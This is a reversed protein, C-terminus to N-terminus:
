VSVETTGDELIVTLRLREGDRYAKVQKVRARPENAEVSDKIELAIESLVEGDIRKDAYDIMNCGYNPRM